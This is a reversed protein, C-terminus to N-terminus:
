LIGSIEMAGCGQRCVTMYKHYIYILMVNNNNQILEDIKNVSYVTRAVQISLAMYSELFAQNEPNALGYGRHM